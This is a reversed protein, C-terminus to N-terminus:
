YTSIAEAQTRGTVPAWGGFLRDAITQRIPVRSPGEHNTQAQPKKRIHIAHNNHFERPKQAFKRLKHILEAYRM